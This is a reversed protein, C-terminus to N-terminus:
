VVSKRDRIRVNQGETDLVEIGRTAQRVVLGDVDGALVVNSGAGLVRVSLSRRRAEELAERLDELGEVEAYWRAHARLKLTNLPTLDVNQALEMATTCCPEGPNDIEGLIGPYALSIDQHVPRGGGYGIARCLGGGRVPHTMRATHALALAEM